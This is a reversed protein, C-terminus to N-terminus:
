DELRLHLDDAFLVLRGGEAPVEPLLELVVELTPVDQKGNGDGGMVSVPPTDHLNWVIERWGRWDLTGRPGYFCEGSQDRL